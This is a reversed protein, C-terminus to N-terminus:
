TYINKSSTAFPRIFKFSIWYFVIALVFGALVDWLYHQKVTLTSISILIAWIMFLPLLRRREKIFGFGAIFTLAIHLSPMANNPTDMSYLLNVMGGTIGNYEMMPRPYVTPYVFFIVMGIFLLLIQAYFIHNMNEKKRLLIFVLAVYIYSTMYIWLSWDIFPIAKEFDFLHLYSPEFIQIHNPTMYCIVFLIIGLPGVWIKQRNNFFPVKLKMNEDKSKLKDTEAHPPLNYPNTNNNKTTYFKV